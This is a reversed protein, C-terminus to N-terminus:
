LPKIGSEKIIKAYRVTEARIFEAFQEPTNVLPEVGAHALREKLDPAALAKHLEANLRDVIPRPTGAPALIGYWIPMVMDVGGERATPVQPLTPIRQETLVALGRVKNGNIVPIAPPVAYTGFDVEGSSLALLAAANGKYPVHVMKLGYM